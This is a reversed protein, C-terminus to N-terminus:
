IANSRKNIFGPKPSILPPQSQSESQPQPQAQPQAKPASKSEVTDKDAQEPNRMVVLNSEKAKKAVPANAVRTEIVEQSVNPIFWNVDGAKFFQTPPINFEVAATQPNTKVVVQTGDAVKIAVPGVVDQGQEDPNIGAIKVESPLYVGNCDWKKNTTQGDALFYLGNDYSYEYDDDDFDPKPGYVALTKGTANTCQGWNIGTELAYKQFELEDIRKQIEETNFGETQAQAEKATLLSNLSKTVEIYEPNKLFKPKDALSPQAFVLSSLIILAVLLSKFLRM